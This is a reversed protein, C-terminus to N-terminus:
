RLWGCRPRWPLPQRNGNGAVVSAQVAVEAAAALKREDFHIGSLFRHQARLKGRRRFVLRAREWSPQALSADPHDDGSADAMPCQGIERVVANRNPRSRRACGDFCHHSVVEPILQVGRGVAAVVVPMMVIVIMVVVTVTMAMVMVLM